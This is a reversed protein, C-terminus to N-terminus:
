KERKEEKLEERLKIYHLRLLVDYRNEYSYVNFLTHDSFSNYTSIREDYIKRISEISRNKFLPRIVKSEMMRSIISDLNSAIHVIVGNMLLKNTPDKFIGSGTAVIANDLSEIYHLADKEMKRFGREGYKEFIEPITMKKWSEILEDTDIFNFNIEKAFERGLTTKGTCPMGVLYIKM